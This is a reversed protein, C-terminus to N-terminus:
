PVTVSPAPAPPPSGSGTGVNMQWIGLYGGAVLAYKGRIAIPYESRCGGVLSNGGSQQIPHAPISIDVIETQSGELFVLVKTNIVTIAYIIESIHSCCSVTPTYFKAEVTPQLPNAVNMIWLGLLQNVDPDVEGAVIATDGAFAIDDVEQATYQSILQPKRPDRLDVIQFTPSKPEVFGNYIYAIQNHFAVSWTDDLEPTAFEYHSLPRPTAASSIDISYIGSTPGWVHAINGDIQMQSVGPGVPLRALLIPSGPSHVDLVLLESGTVLYAVGDIVRVAQAPGGTHFVGLQRPQAITGVDLIRLGEQEDPLYLINGGVDFDGYPYNTIIRPASLDHIDVLALRETPIIGSMESFSVNRVFAIDGFIKVDFIGGPMGYYGILSATTPPRVRIAQLGGDEAGIFLYGGAIQAAAFGGDFGFEGLKAPHSPESVNFDELWYGRMSNPTGLLYATNGEILLDDPLGMTAAAGLRVPKAPDSFDLVVLSEADTYFMGGQMHITAVGVLLNKGWAWLREADPLAFHGIQMPKEYDRVDYIEIGPTVGYESTIATVAAFGGVVEADAITTGPIEISTEKEPRPRSADSIDVVTLHVSDSTPTTLITAETGGVYLKDRRYPPYLADVSRSITLSGLLSPRSADHVDVVSFRGPSLVYLVGRQLKMSAARASVALQSLEVLHDPNTRDYITMTGSADISYVYSNNAEVATVNGGIAAVRTFTLPVPAPAPLSPALSTVPSVSLTPPPYQETPTRSPAHTPSPQTPQSSYRPGPGFLTPTITTGARGPGCDFCITATTSPMRTIAPTGSPAPGCAALVAAIAGLTISKKITNKFSIQRPPRNPGFDNGAQKEYAELADRVM